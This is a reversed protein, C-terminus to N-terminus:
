SDGKWEEGEGDCGNRWDLEQLWELHTWTAQIISHVNHVHEPGAGAWLPWVYQGAVEALSRIMCPEWGHMRRHVRRAICDGIMGTHFNAGSCAIWLGSVIDAVGTGLDIPGPPDYSLGLKLGPWPSHFFCTAPTWEPRFAMLAKADAFPTRVCPGLALWKDGSNEWVWYTQSQTRYFLVRDEPSDEGKVLELGAVAGADRPWM